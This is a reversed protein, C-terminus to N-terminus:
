STILDIEVIYVVWGSHQKIVGGKRVGKKLIEM